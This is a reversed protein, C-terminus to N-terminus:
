FQTKKLHFMKKNHRPPNKDDIGNKIMVPYHPLMFKHDHILNGRTRKGARYPSALRRM